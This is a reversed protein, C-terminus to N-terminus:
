FEVVDAFRNPLEESNSMEQRYELTDSFVLDPHTSGARQSTSRARSGSGVVALIECIGLVSEGWTRARLILSRSKSTSPTRVSPLSKKRGSRSFVVGAGCSLACPEM